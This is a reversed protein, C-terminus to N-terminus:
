GDQGKFYNNLSWVEGARLGDFQLGVGEESSWRISVGVTIPEAHTPIEFSVRGRTGTTPSLGPTELALFAGGLSLNRFLGRWPQGEVELTAAIEVPHRTQLRRHEPM